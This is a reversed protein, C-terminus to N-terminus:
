SCLGCILTNFLSFFIISKNLNTLPDSSKYNIQSLQLNELYIFLTSTFVLLFFVSTLKLLYNSNLYFIKRKLYVLSILCFILLNLNVILNGFIYSYPFTCFFLNIFFSLNYKINKIEILNKVFAIM